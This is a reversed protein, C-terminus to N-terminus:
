DDNKVQINQQNFLQNFKEIDLPRQLLFSIDNTPKEFTGSEVSNGNEDNLSFQIRTIDDGPILNYGIQTAVRTIEKPIISQQM